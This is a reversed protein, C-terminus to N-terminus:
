KKAKKDPKAALEASKKELEEQKEVLQAKLKEVEATVESVRVSGGREELVLEVKDTWHAKNERDWAEAAKRPVEVTEGVKFEYRKGLFGLRLVRKPDVDEGTSQFIGNVVGAKKGTFTLFVPDGMAEMNKLTQAEAHKSDM